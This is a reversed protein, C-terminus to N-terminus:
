KVLLMKVSSKFGSETALRAFYIGSPKNGANWQLRHTGASMEGDALTEVEQGLINLVSLKVFGREPISFEIMTSPNFPNPYNQELRFSGPLEGPSHQVSTVIQSLPRRWIGKWTGAFLNTGSIALAQVYIDTLGTNVATWSAGNNTSVFVGGGYAGVFLNTGSVAFAWVSSTNILGTDAETWSTGNNTSLFVGGGSTGAFLNTGSVAFAWVSLNTLGISSQTWSAGNNTSLFVGGGVTGAFLNTGSVALAWVSLNTLGISGQTWNTGNNTSVFVGDGRTGAFLNTGSAALCVVSGGYPGNTQVWQAEVHYPLLCLVVMFVLITVLLTKM